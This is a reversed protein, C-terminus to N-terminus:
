SVELFWLAEGVALHSPLHKELVIIQDPGVGGSGGYAGGVGERALVFHIGGEVVRFLNKKGM